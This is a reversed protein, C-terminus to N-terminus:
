ESFFCQIFANRTAQGARSSEPVEIPPNNVDSELDEHLESELHPQMTKLAFNHLCTVAVIIAMTNDLRTRLPSRLVRFRSKMLGFCQEIRARTKIHAANYRKERDGQPNIIPTLLYPRCGYGGDGLLVGDYKKAEFDDRLTSNEFIRSDHASGPWRAVLNTVVRNSDCVMQVNLSMYGKRNRFVEQQDAYEAGSPAAIPIHTCDIAGIVKPFGAIRYFDRKAASPSQPFNIFLSRRKAIARSLQHVSRGATQRSIGALDGDTMQFNGTAYFRLATTLQILPSLGNGRVNLENDGKVVDFLKMTAAKSFRHRARFEEEGYREFPNSVDALRRGVSVFDRNEDDVLDLVDLVDM